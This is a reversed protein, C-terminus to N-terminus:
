GLVARKDMLRYVPMFYFKWLARRYYDGQKKLTSVRNKLIPQAFLFYKKSIAAILM